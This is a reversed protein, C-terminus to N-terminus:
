VAVAAKEDEEEVSSSDTTSRTGSKRSKGAGSPGPQEPDEEEEESEGRMEEEAGDESHEEKARRESRRTQRAAREGGDEKPPGRGGFPKLWDHELCKRATARADQDFELMPILFSAFQTADEFRWEYKQTLVEVLSWPKLQSIHLLRGNKNFFERWHTGKKYVSPPISGLLEVIHALHDDDRSYQSGQHPEFLYDGTALEFAM